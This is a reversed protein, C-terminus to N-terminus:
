QLLELKGYVDCEFVDDVEKADDVKTIEIDSTEIEELIQTVIDTADATTAAYEKPITFTMTTSFEVKLSNDDDYTNESSSVEAEGTITIDEYHLDKAIDKCVVIYDKVSENAEATSTTYDNTDEPPYYFDTQTSPDRFEETSETMLM